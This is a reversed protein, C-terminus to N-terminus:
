FSTPLVESGQGTWEYAVADIRDLKPEDGDDEIRKSLKKKKPFVTNKSSNSRIEDRQIQGRYGM